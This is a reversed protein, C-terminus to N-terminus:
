ARVAKRSLYGAVVAAVDAPGDRLVDFAPRGTTRRIEAKAEVLQAHTLSEHNLTIAVVPKGSILEVAQIQKDLPHMPYGPFGDYEKRAPAHQLVVVDPRGAALIEFGGPYAPNLLSGQGEIVIVEPHVEHWASWVAHEIEGAVFDNVLADLIIGYRVGQMWATQGTGIMEATRGLQRLGEVLLLATTRKGIASDTGLVAVTLSDVQEIKGSFFHLESRPPPRRVDRIRVGAKEALGILKPDESLFDHLGCDVNLGRRIAEMVDERATPPLRGGDPALGVVLHTAPTGSAAAAQVASPVDVMVRVGNARDDLVVGADAGARRSDVVSLVRYRDTRRVLGHATKGNPTGFAKECYVIASGEPMTIM